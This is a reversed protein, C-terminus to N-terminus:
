VPKVVFFYDIILLNSKKRFSREFLIQCVKSDKNSKLRFIVIYLMISREKWTKSFSFISKYFRRRWFNNIKIRILIKHHKKLQLIKDIMQSFFYRTFRFLYLRNSNSRFTTSFNVYKMNRKHRYQLDISAVYM